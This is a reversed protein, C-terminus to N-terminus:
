DARVYGSVLEVVHTRRRDLWAPDSLDTRFAASLTYRNNLHHCSLAVISVYIQLADASRRFDGSAIGRRLVDGLAAILPSSMEPIQKSARIYRGRLLNEGSTLRVFDHNARFHDYTFEVLAKLAEVPDRSSLQLKSESERLKAYVSELVALYLGDKDGYHEYLLKMNSRAATVIREIRAGSFGHTSFERVAAALLRSKTHEADRRKPRKKVAAQKSKM